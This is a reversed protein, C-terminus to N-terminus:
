GKKYYRDRYEIFEATISPDVRFYGHVWMRESSSTSSDEVDENANKTMSLVIVDESVLHLSLTVGGLTRDKPFHYSPSSTTWKTNNKAEEPLGDVLSYADLNQCISLFEDIQEQEPFFHVDMNNYISYCIYSPQLSNALVDDWLTKMERMAKEEESLGCSAPLLVGFVLMICLTFKLVKKM